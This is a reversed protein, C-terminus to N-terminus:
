IQGREIAEEVWPILEDLVEEIPTEAIFGWLDRAKSVDPIRKQVDHPYPAEHEVSFPRDPGHIKVWILEALELM